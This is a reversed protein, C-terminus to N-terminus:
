NRLVLCSGGAKELKACLSVARERTAEAIRVRYWTASGKGAMQGRVVVPHRSGLVGSFRSQIKKFQALARSQSWDGALQLGWPGWPGADIDSISVGKLLPARPPDLRSVISVTIPKATPTIQTRILPCAEEAAVRAACGAWREAPEGTIIKVYDRTEAPLSSQGGLWRTVRGPGANYAAAALGLNGFEAWLERLWRASEHLAQSTNFPDALGRWEATGPMFQAIGQAGARSIAYPKFRSEQWILNRFFDTPLGHARAAQLVDHELPHIPKEPQNQGESGKLEVSMPAIQAAMDEPAVEGKAATTLMLAVIGTAFAQRARQKGSRM